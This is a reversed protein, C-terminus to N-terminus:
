LFAIVVDLTFGVTRTDDALSPFVCTLHAVITLCFNRLHILVFLVGGLPDRTMYRDGIFHNHSGWTLFSSFFVIPIVHTYVDFLNFIKMWLVPHFNYTRFFPQSHYWISFM